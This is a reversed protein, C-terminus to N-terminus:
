GPLDIVGHRAFLERLSDFGIIDIVYKKMLERGSFLLGCHCCKASHFGGGFYSPDDLELDLSLYWGCGAPCKLALKENEVRTHVCAGTAECGDEYDVEQEEIADHFKLSKVDFGDGKYIEPVVIINILNTVTKVFVAGDSVRPNNKSKILDKAIILNRKLTDNSIHQYVNACSAKEFFVKFVSLAHTFYANLAQENDDPTLSNHVFTNRIKRTEHAASRLNGSINHVACFNDILKLYDRQTPISHRCVLEIANSISIMANPFRGLGLMLISVEFAQLSSVIQDGDFELGELFIYKPDRGSPIGWELM